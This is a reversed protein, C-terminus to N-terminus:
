TTHGRLSGGELHGDQELEVCLVVVGDLLQGVACLDFRHTCHWQKIGRYIENANKRFVCILLYVDIEM